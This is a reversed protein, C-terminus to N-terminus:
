KQKKVEQIRTFYSELDPMIIRIRRIFIQRVPKGFLINRREGTLTELKRSGSSRRGKRRRRQHRPPCAPWCRTRRARRRSRRRRRKRRRRVSVKDDITRSFSQKSDKALSLRLRAKKAASPYRLLSM